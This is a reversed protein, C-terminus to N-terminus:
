PNLRKEVEKKLTSIYLKIQIEVSKWNEYVIEEGYYNVGNRKTRVKEFFDWNFELKPHNKCLHTFLCLHNSIKKKDLLLYAEAYIRLAEYYNVYVNMWAPNKKDISKALFDATSIDIEANRILSKIRQPNVSFSDKYHGNDDCWQNAEEINNFRLM